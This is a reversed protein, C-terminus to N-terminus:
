VTYWIQVGFQLDRLLMADVNALLTALQFEIQSASAIQASIDTDGVICDGSASAGAGVDWVGVPITIGSTWSGGSVKEVQVVGATAIYNAAACYIERFKMILFAKVVTAGSPLAPTLRTATSPTGPGAADIKLEDELGGWLTVWNYATRLADLDEYDYNGRVDGM